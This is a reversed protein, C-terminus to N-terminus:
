AGFKKRLVFYWLAFGGGGLLLLGIAIGGVIWGWTSPAGGGSSIDSPNTNGLDAAGSKTPTSQIPDGSPEGLNSSDETETPLTGSSEASSDTSYPSSGASIGPRIAETRNTPQGATPSTPVAASTGISGVTKSATSSSSTSDGPPPAPTSEIYEAIAAALKEAIHKNGEYNFHLEDAFDSVQVWGTTDLFVVNKDGAKRRANVATIIEKKFYGDGGTIDRGGLPRLAFITANPYTGRLATLFQIYAEEVQSNSYSRDNTGLNVVIYDPAYRSTDLDPCSTEGELFPRDKFYRESMSYIDTGRVLLGIGGRAVVNYAFGLKEATQWTYCHRLWNEYGNGIWGATISDGIFEITKRSSVKKLTAGTDCWLGAIRLRAVQSAAYLKLTHEGAQLGSALLNKGKSPVAIRIPEAGDISYMIESLANVERDEPVEVSISTGTFIVEFGSQFNLQVGGGGLTEWRGYYTISAHDMGFSQGGAEASSTPVLSLAPILLAALCACVKNKM